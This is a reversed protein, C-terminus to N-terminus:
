VVAYGHRRKQEYRHFMNMAGYRLGYKDIM